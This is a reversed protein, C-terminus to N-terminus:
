KYVSRIQSVVFEVVLIVTWSNKPHPSMEKPIGKAINQMVITLSGMLIMIRM